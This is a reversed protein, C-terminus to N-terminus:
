INLIRVYHFSGHVLGVLDSIQSGNSDSMRSKKAKQNKFVKFCTKKRNM